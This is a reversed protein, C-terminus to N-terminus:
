LKALRERAENIVKERQALETEDTEYKNHLVNLRITHELREKLTKQDTVPVICLCDTKQHFLCFVPAEKPSPNM